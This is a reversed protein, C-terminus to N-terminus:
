PQTTPTAQGDVPPQQGNNGNPGGQPKGLAQQLEEVTVGLTEAVAELDPRCNPDKPAGEEATACEAPKAAEFAQQLEEETIGLTEAAAAFDPGGRHGLAADLEEVTVGLATAVAEMDPRCDVGQSPQGDVCEAPKADQLAQQLEEVTVSLAEAAATLDREGRKGNNPGGQQAPANSNLSAEVGPASPQQQAPQQEQVAAQQDSAQAETQTVAGGCASVLVAFLAVCTVILIKKNKM